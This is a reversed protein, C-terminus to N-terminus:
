DSKFFQRLWDFFRSARGVVHTGAEDLGATVEDLAPEVRAAWFRRWRAWLAWFVAFLAALTVINQWPILRMDPDDIVRMRVVNPYVSLLESRWGYHRLLVWTITEDNKNSILDTAQAQINSTGFKFYPPWGWGTDENRYVSIAGDPRVASILRLDYNQLAADAARNQAYFIQSFGGFDRRIIDTGTIRLIDHQPLTYHLFGIILCTFILRFTWIFYTM